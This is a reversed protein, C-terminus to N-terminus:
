EAPLPPASQIIERVHTRMINSAFVVPDVSSGFFSTIGSATGLLYMKAVVEKLDEPPAKGNRRLVKTLVRGVEALLSDLCAIFHHRFESNREAELHLELGLLGDIRAANGSRLIVDDLCSDHDAAADLMAEWFALDAAQRERLIELTMELKDNFHAYFAGKTLGAERAVQEIRAGRVGQSAVVAVGSHMLRKRTVQQQERRTLRQM